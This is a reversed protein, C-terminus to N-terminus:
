AAEGFAGDVRRRKFDEHSAEPIAQGISNTLQRRKLSTPKEFDPDFLM